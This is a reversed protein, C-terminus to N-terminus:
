KEGEKEKEKPIEIDLGEKKIRTVDLKYHSQILRQEIMGSTNRLPLYECGGYMLCQKSGAKPFNNTEISTEIQKIWSQLDVLSEDVERDTKVSLEREPRYKDKHIYIVNMAAIPKQPGLIKFFGLKKAVWLYWLIQYSKSLEKFYYPGLRSATKDEDLAVRKNDELRLVGDIRGEFLIGPLVEELFKIEPHVFQDPDNPYYECYHQLIEIGRPFSRLPDDERDVPLVHGSQAWEAAFAEVAFDVPFMEKTILIEKRIDDTMPNAIELNSIRDDAIGRWGRFGALGAAMCGGLVLPKSKIRPVIAQRYRKKFKQPCSMYCDIKSHSYKKM